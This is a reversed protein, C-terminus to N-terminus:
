EEKPYDYFRKCHGNFFSNKKNLYLPFFGKRKYKSIRREFTSSYSYFNIPNFLKVLSALAGYTCFIELNANMFFKSPELDFGGIVQEASSYIRKIIQIKPRELTTYSNITELMENTKINPRKGICFLDYDKPEDMRIMDTISGGALIMNGENIMLIELVETPIQIKNGDFRKTYCINEYTYRNNKHVYRGIKLLPWNLSRRSFEQLLISMDAILEDKGEEEESSGSKNKWEDKNEEDDIIKIKKLFYNMSILRKENDLVDSALKSNKKEAFPNKIDM